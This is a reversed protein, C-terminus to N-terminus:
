CSLCVSVCVCVFHTLADVWYEPQRQALGHRWSVQYGVNDVVTQLDERVARGGVRRKEVQRDCVGSHPSQPVFEVVVVGLGPLARDRVNIVGLDDRAHEDEVELAERVGHDRGLEELGEQPYCLDGVGARAQPLEAHHDVLERDDALGDDEAQQRPEVCCLEGGLGEGLEKGAVDQPGGVVM